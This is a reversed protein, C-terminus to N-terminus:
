HLDPVYVLEDINPELTIEIRRNKAKGRETTNPAIPDNEAYGAASLESPKMGDAILIRTVEVARAASLEWNSAFRETDIPVDDTHGAVQFHRNPVFKLVSAVVKLTKRGRPQVETQGSAFIVDSPLQLVMRGDRLVVSLDDTDVMTALKEAIEHFLRERAATATQVRKLAEFRARAEDLQGALATRDTELDGESKRMRALADGLKQNSSIEDQLELALQGHAQAADAHARQLQARADSASQVADDYKGRTVCGSALSLVVMAPLLTKM